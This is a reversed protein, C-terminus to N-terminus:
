ASMQDNVLGYSRLEKTSLQKRSVAVINFPWGFVTRPNIKDHHAESWIDKWGDWLTRERTITAVRYWLGDVKALASSKDIAVYDAPRATPPQRLGHRTTEGRRRRPNCLIGHKDVYLEGHQLPRPERWHPQGCVEGKDNISAHLEVYGFLHEYIHLNIASTPKFQQRLESYVKNWPRGVNKLLWKKLPNLNENLTKNNYGAVQPKKMSRKRPADSEVGDDGEVLQLNNEQRRVDRYSRTSSGIRERECLLKPFDPRM